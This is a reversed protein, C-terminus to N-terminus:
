WMFPDGFQVSGTKDDSLEGTLSAADVTIDLQPFAISGAIIAPRYTRNGHMVWRGDSFFVKTSSMERVAPASATWTLDLVVPTTYTMTPVWETEPDAPPDGIWVSVSAEYSGAIRAGSLTRDIGADYPSVTLEVTRYLSVAPATPDGLPLPSEGPVYDSLYFTFGRDTGKMPRTGIQHSFYTSSGAWLGASRFGGGALEYDGWASANRGSFRYTDAVATAPIAALVLAAAAVLVLWRVLRVNM